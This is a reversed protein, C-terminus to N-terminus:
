KSYSLDTLDSLDRQALFDVSQAHMILMLVSCQPKKLGSSFCDM